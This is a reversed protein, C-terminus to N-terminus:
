PQFWVKVNHNPMKGDMHQEVWEILSPNNQENDSYVYRVPIPALVSPGPKIEPVGTRRWSAWGEFGNLFSDIFYQEAIMTLGKEPQYQNVSNAWYADRQDESIYPNQTQTQSGVQEWKGFSANVAERYIEAAQGTVGMNRQIAEAKLLLLESYTMLFARNDRRIRRGVVSFDGEKLGTSEYLEEQEASSLGATQGRYQLEKNADGANALFSNRTPAAYIFLRPDGGKELLGVMVDSVRANDSFDVGSGDSSPNQIFWPYYDSSNNYVLTAGDDVASFVPYRDPNNFIQAVQQSVDKKASQRMLIRIKLANAFKRWKQLDGNYLIDRSVSVGAPLEALLNNAAELDELMRQYVEEQAQYKPFELGDVNGMGAEDYPIDGFADTVLSLIYVKNIHALAIYEPQNNQEALLKMQNVDKILRVAGNWEERWNAGTLNFRGDSESTGGPYALHQVYQGARRGSGVMTNAGGSIVPPLLMEVPVVAPNNPDINIEEFDNCSQFAMVAVALCALYKKM